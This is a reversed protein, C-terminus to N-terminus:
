RPDGTTMVDDIVVFSRGTLDVKAAFAGTRNAVRETVGLNKQSSTRRAVRLVGAPRAGARRTLLAVPDYGRRRYADRSTPVAVFEVAGTLPLAKRLAAGLPAGLAAAADTRHEEKLALIIGRVVGEYRLATVVRLGGPTSRTAPDPVLFASCASCLSRDPAGCGACDVPMVLAWADLLAARLDM